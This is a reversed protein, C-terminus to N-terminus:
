ITEHPPTTGGAARDARVLVLGSAVIVVTGTWKAADPFDGFLVLGLFTASVIEFYGFPALLTAPALRYAHIFMLHAVTAVLGLVMLLTWVELGVPAITQFEQWGTGAAVALVATLTLLGGVGSYFHMALSSTTRSLHRGLVLYISVLVACVLPLTAVLGLEAFNPRIVLLAGCFGVIVAAIRRIDIREGLFLVSLLTVIMPEVFVITGFGLLVGRLLNLRLNGVKLGTRGEFALLLPLVMLTQLGFRAFAIQGAPMGHTEVLLKAASDLVPVLLSGLIVLLVGRAASRSDTSPDASLTTM